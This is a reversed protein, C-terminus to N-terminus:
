PIQPLKFGKRMKVLRLLLTKPSTCPPCTITNTVARDLLQLILTKKCPWVTQIGRKRHSSNLVLSSTRNCKPKKTAWNHGVRQSGMSQALSGQGESDGPTQESEHGSLWHHWRVMHYKYFSTLLNFSWLSFYHKRQIQWSLDLSMNITGLMM